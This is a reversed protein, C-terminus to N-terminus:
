VTNSFTKRGLSKNLERASRMVLQLFSVSHIKILGDV